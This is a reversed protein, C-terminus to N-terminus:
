TRPSVRVGIYILIRVYGKAIVNVIQENFLDVAPLCLEYMSAM